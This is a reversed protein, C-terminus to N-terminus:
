KLIRTWELETNVSERITVDEFMYFYKIKPIKNMYHHIYETVFYVFLFIVTVIWLMAVHVSKM